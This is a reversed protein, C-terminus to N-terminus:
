VRRRHASVPSISSSGWRAAPYHRGDDVVRARQEGFPGVRVEEGQVVFQGLRADPREDRDDDQGLGPAATGLVLDGQDMPGAVDEGFVLGRAAGRAKGARDGPGGVDAVCDDDHGGDAVLGGNDGAVGAVQGADGVRDADLDAQEWGSWCCGSQNELGRPRQRTIGPPGKDSPAGACHDFEVSLLLGVRDM